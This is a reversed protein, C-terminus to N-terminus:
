GKTNISILELADGPQVGQAGLPQDRVLETTGKALKYTLPGGGPAAAMIHGEALLHDIVQQPTHTSLDLNLPVNLSGASDRITVTPTV